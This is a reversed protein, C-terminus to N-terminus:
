KQPSNHPTAKLVPVILKGNARYAQRRIRFAGTNFGLDDWQFALVEGRCLGTALELLFLEYRGRKAQVLFRQM